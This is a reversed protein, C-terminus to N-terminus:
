RYFIYDTEYPVFGKKGVDGAAACGTAPAVGGATNIRHIHKTKVLKDGWQPGYQSGVVDLRLWPIAGPAVPPDTYIM